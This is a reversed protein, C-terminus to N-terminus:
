AGTKSTDFAVDDEADAAAPASGRMRVAAVVGALALLCAAATFITDIRHFHRGAFSWSFGTGLSTAVFGALAMSTVSALYVAPNLVGNVRGLLRNPTEQLMIPGLVTNVLGLPIGLLGMLVIAVVISTSQAFVLFVVSTAVIGWVFTRREGILRTARMTLLAGIISGAGFAGNLTGLWSAATHLNESVFFVELVNIAGVGLMYIFVTFALTTLVRNGRIFHWGEAFDAKFSRGGEEDHATIHPIDTLRVCLYSVLFSAMDVALAWQQGATFLLPAALPPGLVTATNSTATAVSFARARDDKAVVAGIIAFRSPNFFQSACSVLAVAAYLSTLEVWAPLRHQSTIVLLLGIVAARILDTRLMTRKRDWRDALVGALPGVAVIPVAAALTLGSVAAPAWSRGKAVVTGVWLVVTVNFVLDGVLSVTQGLWLKQWNRNKRL